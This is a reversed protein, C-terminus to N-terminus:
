PCLILTIIVGLFLTVVYTLLSLYWKQRILEFIGQPSFGYIEKWKSNTKLTGHISRNIINAFIDVKQLTSQHLKIFEKNDFAEAEQAGSLYNLPSINNLRILQEMRPHGIYSVGYKDILLCAIDIKKSDDFLTPNGNLVQFRHEIAKFGFTMNRMNWHLWFFGVHIRVYEFFESLMQSELEDYQEDIKSFEIHNKEAVKHISFSDTQGSEYSRVAISTIRPTRGEKIDYFSECSYHIILYKSPNKDIEKFVKCASRHKDYQM